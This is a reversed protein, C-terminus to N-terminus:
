TRLSRSRSLLELAVIGDSEVEVAACDVTVDDDDDDDIYSVLNRCETLKLPIDGRVREDWRISVIVFIPYEALEHATGTLRDSTM